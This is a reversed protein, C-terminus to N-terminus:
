NFGIDLFRQRAKEVSLIWQQKEEDSYNLVTKLRKNFFRRDNTLWCEPDYTTFHQQITKDLCERKERRWKHNPGHLISNRHEWMSRILHFLARVLNGAWVRSSARWRTHQRRLWKEQALQWQEATRGYIFPKWGLRDQTEMAIRSELPMKVYQFKSHREKKQWGLLRDKIIM